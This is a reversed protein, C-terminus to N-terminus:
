DNSVPIFLVGAGADETEDKWTLNGDDYVFRGSGQTYVETEEEPGEASYVVDVRTGDTYGLEHGDAKGSFEWFVVHVEDKVLTIMGSCTGADDVYVDLTLKDNESGVWQGAFVNETEESVTEADGDKSGVSFDKGMFSHSCGSLLGATCLVTVLLGARRCKRM